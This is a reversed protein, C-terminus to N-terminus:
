TSLLQYWERTLGGADEGEEGEFDIKVRNRL